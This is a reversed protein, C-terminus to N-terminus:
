KSPKFTSADRNIFSASTTLAVPIPREVRYSIIALRSNGAGM